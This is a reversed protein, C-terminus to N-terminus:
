KGKWPWAPVGYAIVLGGVAGGIGALWWPGFLLSLGAGLIAGGLVKLREEARRDRTMSSVREELRASKVREEMLAARAEKLEEETKTSRAHTEEAWREAFVRAATTRFADAERLATAMASQELGGRSEDPKRLALAADKM